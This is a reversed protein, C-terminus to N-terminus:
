KFKFYGQDPTTKLNFFFIQKLEINFFYIKMFKRAENKFAQFQSKEVGPRLNFAVAGGGRDQGKLCFYFM